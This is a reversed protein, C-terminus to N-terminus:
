KYQIIEVKQPKVMEFEEYDTGYHSQYCGIFNCWAAENENYLSMFRYTNCYYSGENEGGEHHVNEFHISKLIKIEDETFTNNFSETDEENLHNIDEEFKYDNLYDHLYSDRFDYEDQNLDLIFEFYRKVLNELTSSWVFDLDSTM